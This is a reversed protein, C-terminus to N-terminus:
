IKLLTFEGFLRLLHIFGYISSAKPPDDPDKVLDKYQAKELKYLLQTAFSANFYEKIGNAAEKVASEKSPTSKTSNKQKIYDNIIRDVTVKVPLRILKKQRILEWDDVLLQKLNDPIKVKIDTLKTTSSDEHEPTPEVKARKKRQGDSDKAVIPSEKVDTHIPSAISPVLNSPINLKPKIKEAGM